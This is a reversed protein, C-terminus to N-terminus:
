DDYRALLEETEGEKERGERESGRGKEIEREM